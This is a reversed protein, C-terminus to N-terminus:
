GSHEFRGAWTPFCIQDLWEFWFNMLVPILTPAAGTQDAYEM